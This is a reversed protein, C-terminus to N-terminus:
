RQEEEGLIGIAKKLINLADDRREKNLYFNAAEEFIEPVAENRKMQKAMLCLCRYFLTRM